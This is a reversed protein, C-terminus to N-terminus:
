LGYDENGEPREEGFQEWLREFRRAYIMEFLDDRGPFLEECLERLKEIEILIDVRPLDTSLIHVAIRDAARQLVKM